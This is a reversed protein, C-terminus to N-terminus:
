QKAPLFHQLQLDSFESPVASSMAKKTANLYSQNHPNLTATILDKSLKVLVDEALDGNGFHHPPSISALLFM